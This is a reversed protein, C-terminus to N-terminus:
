PPGLHKAGSGFASYSIWTSLLPSALSSGVKWNRKLLVSAAEPLPTVSGMPALVRGGRQDPGPLDHFGAVAGGNGLRQVVDADPGDGVAGAEGAAVDARDVDGASAHGGLQKEALAPSPTM